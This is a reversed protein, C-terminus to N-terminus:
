PSSWDPYNQRKWSVQQHNGSRFIHVRLAVPASILYPSFVNKFTQFTITYTIQLSTAFVINVVQPHYFEQKVKSM